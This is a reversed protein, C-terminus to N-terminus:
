QQDRKATQFRTDAHTSAPLFGTSWHSEFCSLAKAQCAVNNRYPAEFILVPRSCYHNRGSVRNVYDVERALRIVSHGVRHPAPLWNLNKPLVEAMTCPLDFKFHPRLSSSDSQQTKHEIRAESFVGPAGV